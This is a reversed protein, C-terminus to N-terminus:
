EGFEFDEPADDADGGDRTVYYQQVLVWIGAVRDEDTGTGGLIRRFEDAFQEASLVRNPDVFQRLKKKQGGSLRLGGALDAVMEILTGDSLGAQTMDFASQVFEATTM